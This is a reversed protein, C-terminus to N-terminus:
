TRAGGVAELMAEVENTNSPHCAVRVQFSPASIAGRLSSRFRRLFAETQHERAGALLVLLACGARSVMDGDEDRIQRILHPELAELAGEVDSTLSLLSTCM